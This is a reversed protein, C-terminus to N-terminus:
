PHTYLYYVFAVIVPTGFVLALLINGFTSRLIPLESGFPYENDLRKNNM